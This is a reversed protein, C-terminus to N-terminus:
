RSDDHTTADRNMAQYRWRSDSFRFHLAATQHLYLVEVGHDALRERLKASARRSSPYEADMVVIMKAGLMTLLSTALPEGQTPLGSIVLDAKLAPEREILANQGPKGLDSLLLVRVGEIEGFLVIANDDAQSFSDGTAPHLVRWPGIKDGRKM